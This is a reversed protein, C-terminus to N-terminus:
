HYAMSTPGPTSCAGTFEPGNDITIAVPYGRQLAVREVARVVCSGPLSTGVEIALSERTFDDVVNLTRFRRGDALQDCVFDMSWRENPRSPSPLRVRPHHAVRKRRKRRVKLGDLRYLRYVRKHNIAFGERRLMVHLRRYGFRPREQALSRLRDRIVGGDGRRAAYRCTALCLSLARCARRQSVGFEMQLWRAADRKAAPSVM